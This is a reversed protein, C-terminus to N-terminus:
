KSLAFTIGLLLIGSPDNSFTFSVFKLEKIINKDLMDIIEGAEKMNRSLRDPHWAIVSNYEGKQILKLMKNFEPRKGSDKASCKEVLIDKQSVNISQRKAFMLCEDIQDEISRIQKGEEDTSKRVYILFKPKGAEVKKDQITDRLYNTLDSPTLNEPIKM